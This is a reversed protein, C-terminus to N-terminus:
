AGIGALAAGLSRIMGLVGETGRAEIWRVITDRGVVATIALFVLLAQFWRTDMYGRLAAFISALAEALPATRPPVEATPQEGTAPESKEAM